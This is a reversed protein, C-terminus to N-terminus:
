NNQVIIEMILAVFGSEGTVYYKDKDKIFSVKEDPISKLMKSMVVPNFSFNSLKVSLPKEYEIGFGGDTMSLKDEIINANVIRGTTSNICTDCFRIIESKGIEVKEEDPIIAFPNMDIFKAETKIFGFRFVHNSFFQCRDNQSFLVSEFNKVLGAANKEIIIEPLEKDIKEFYAIYGTTAAVLGKGIFVRMSYGMVGDSVFNSAINIARIVDHSLEIEKGESISSIPFNIVPETPSIMKEKGHSIIVSNDKIAVDIEEANTSEIFSYLIKEDILCSGEFDADMIIFSELNNKTIEGKDFKLYSLIPLLKNQVMGGAISKFKRLEKTNLKM